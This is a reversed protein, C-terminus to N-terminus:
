PSTTPLRVTVTITARARVAQELERGLWAADADESQAARLRSLLDAYVAEPAPAPEPPAALRNLSQLTQQCGVQLSIFQALM